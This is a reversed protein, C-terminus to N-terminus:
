AGIARIYSEPTILEGQMQLEQEAANLARKEREYTESQHRDWVVQILRWQGSISRALFDVEYGKQTVYYYIDFGQRRLDLYILNELYVGKKFSISTTYAQALGTDIAYIKRPARQQKKLSESYLPVTFALYVDEIYTMYDYLTMKSLRLNQSKLDNYIKHISLYGGTNKLLVRILHKILTLNTIRYREVIDRFIVVEVYNQLVQHRYVSELGIVEPFGGENLYHTLHQQFQDLQKKGIPKQPHGLQKAQLYETYSYPWVETTLTRGRLSTAIEKSLLKASSGTLFIKVQKKDFYRRVMQAWNGVNQIEDFFLYCLRDHNEPYLTYFADILTAAKDLVLPALRDDEFNIYLIQDVATNNNVLQKMHQFLLTTKGTRRMGILTNIKNKIDPIRINRTIFDNFHGLEERMEELLVQLLQNPDNM